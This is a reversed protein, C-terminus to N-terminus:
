ATRSPCVAPPGVPWSRGLRRLTAISVANRRADLKVQPRALIAASSRLAIQNWIAMATVQAKPRPKRASSPLSNALRTARPAPGVRLANRDANKVSTPQWPSCTEAPMRQSSVIIACTNVLPNLGSMWRRMRHKASNQCASSMMQIATNVTTYKSLLAAHAASVIFDEVVGVECRAILVYFTTADSQPDEAIQGSQPEGDQQGRGGEKDRAGIENPLRANRDCQHHQRDRLHAHMQHEEQVDGRAGVVGVVHEREGETDQDDHKHHASREPDHRVEIVVHHRHILDHLHLPLVLQQRAACLCARKPSECSSRCTKQWRRSGASSRAASDRRRPDQACRQDSGARWRASEPRDARLPSRTSLRNDRSPGAHSPSRPWPSSPLAGPRRRRRCAFCRRSWDDGSRAPAHVRRNAGYALPM